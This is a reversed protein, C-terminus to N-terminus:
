LKYILIVKNDSKIQQCITAAENQGMIASLVQKKTTNFRREYNQTNFEITLREVEREKLKNIRNEIDEISELVKTLNQFNNLLNEDIRKKKM